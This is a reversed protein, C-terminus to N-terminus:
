ARRSSSKKMAIKAGKAPVYKPSAGFTITAKKGTPKLGKKAADKKTMITYKVKKEM